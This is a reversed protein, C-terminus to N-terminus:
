GATPGSEGEGPSRAARQEAALAADREDAAKRLVRRVHERTYGGTDRGVRRAVEDLTRVIDTPRMDGSEVAQLMASALKERLKKATAEARYFERAASELETSMRRIM